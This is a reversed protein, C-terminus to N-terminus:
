RIAVTGVIIVIKGWQKVVANVKPFIMLLVVNRLAFKGMISGMVSIPTACVM